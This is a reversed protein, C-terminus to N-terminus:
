RDQLEELISYGAQSKKACFLVGFGVISTMWLLVQEYDIVIALILDPTEATTVGGRWGWRLYTFWYM